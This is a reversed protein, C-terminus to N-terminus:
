AARLCIELAAIAAYDLVPVLMAQTLTPSFLLFQPAM